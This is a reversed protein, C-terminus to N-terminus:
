NENQVSLMEMKLVSSCTSIQNLLMATNNSKIRQVVKFDKEM